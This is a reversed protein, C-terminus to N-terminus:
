APNRVRKRSFYVGRRQIDARKGCNKKRAKLGVNVIEKMLSGLVTIQQKKWKDRIFGRWGEVRNRKLVVGLGRSFYEFSRKGLLM